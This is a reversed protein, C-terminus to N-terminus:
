KKSGFKDLIDMAFNQMKEINISYIDVSKIMERKRICQISNLIHLFDGVAIFVMSYYIIPNLDPIIKVMLACIVPLFLILIKSILDSLLYNTISKLTPNIVLHKILGFIASICFLVCLVFAMTKDINLWDFFHIAYTLIFSGSILTANNELYQM